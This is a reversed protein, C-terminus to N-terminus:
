ISSDGSKSSLIKFFCSSDYLNPLTKGLERDGKLEYVSDPMIQEGLDVIGAIVGQVVEPQEADAQDIVHQNLAEFDVTKKTKDEGAQNFKFAM